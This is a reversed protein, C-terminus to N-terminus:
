KIVKKLQISWSPKGEDTPQILESESFLYYDREGLGFLIKVGEQVM